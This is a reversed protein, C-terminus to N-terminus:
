KLSRLPKVRIGKECDAILTELHALRTEEKKPKMLWWIAAKRYSPTQMQWWAWAKRNTKLKKEYEASLVVNNQEYSYQKSKEVDHNQYAALGAPHMLGSKELIAARELNRASWISGKKRRTFRMMYTFEGLSKRIAEAWGFCIMEDLSEEYGIGREHGSKKYFGIWLEAAAAHNKLMWSHLETASLFFIPEPM